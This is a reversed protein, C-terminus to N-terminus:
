KLNNKGYIKERFKHLKDLNRQSVGNETRKIGLIRLYRNATPKSVPKGISTMHHSIALGRDSEEFLAPNCILEVVVNRISIYRKERKKVLSHKQATKSWM